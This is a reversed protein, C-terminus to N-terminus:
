CSEGLMLQQTPKIGVKFAGDLQDASFKHFHVKDVLMEGHVVHWM